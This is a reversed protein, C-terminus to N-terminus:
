SPTFSLLTCLLRRSSSTDPHIKHPCPRSHNTFPPHLHLSPHRPLPPPPTTPPLHPLHLLPLTLLRHAAAPRPQSRPHAHSPLATTATGQMGTQQAGARPSPSSHGKLHRNTAPPHEWPTSGLGRQFRNPASWGAPRRSAQQGAPRGERSIDGDLCSGARSLVQWFGRDRRGGGGGTGLVCRLHPFHPFLSFSWPCTNTQPFQALPGARGQSSCGRFDLTTVQGTPAKTNQQLLSVQRGAVWPTGAISSTVPWVTCGACRVGVRRCSM